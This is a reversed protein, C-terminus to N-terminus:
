LHYDFLCLGQLDTFGLELKKPKIGEFHDPDNRDIHIVARSVMVALNENLWDEIAVEEKIEVKRTEGTDFKLAVKTKGNKAPLTITRVIKM